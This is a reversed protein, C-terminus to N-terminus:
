LGCVSDAVTSLGSVTEAVTYLGSVTEAVTSLGCVRDAVTSLGSVTEAVTYCPLGLLIARGPDCRSVFIERGKRRSSVDM